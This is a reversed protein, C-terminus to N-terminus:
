ADPSEEPDGHGGPETGIPAWADSTGNQEIVALVDPERILMLEVGEITLEQGAGYKPWMIKDDVAVDECDDAVAVVTGTLPVEQATPPIIIGSATTEVASDALVILRKGLPTLKV